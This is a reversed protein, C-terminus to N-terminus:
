PAGLAREGALHERPDDEGTLRFFIRPNQLRGPVALTQRSIRGLWRVNRVHPTRSRAIYRYAGAIEGVVLQGEDPGGDPVILPEGEHPESRFEEVQRSAKSRLTTTARELAPLAVLSGRVFRRLATRGSPRVVWSSLPEPGEPARETPEPWVYPLDDPVDPFHRRYHGPYRRVLASQHSRHFAGWGLWPPVRGRAALAEQSPGAQPCFEALKPGVQDRYGRSVWEAVVAEGYSVLACALGRWMAVAPHYRWGYDDIHLARLIQLAEVRQKGLRRDDLVQASRCFQPYPLFTQM